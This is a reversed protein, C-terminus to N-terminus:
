KTGGGGFFARKGAGSAEAAVFATFEGKLGRLFDMLGLLNMGILRNKWVAEFIERGFSLGLGIQPLSLWADSIRTELPCGLKM